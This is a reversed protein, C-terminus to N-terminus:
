AETMNACISSYVIGDMFNYYQSKHVTIRSTVYTRGCSVPIQKRKKKKRTATSEKEEM